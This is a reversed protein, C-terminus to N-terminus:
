DSWVGGFGAGMNCGTNLHTVSSSLDNKQWDRSYPNVGVDVGGIDGLLTEISRCLMDQLALKFGRLAVKYRHWGPLNAPDKPAEIERRVEQRKM